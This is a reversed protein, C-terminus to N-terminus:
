RCVTSSYLVTLPVSGLRACSSFLLECFLGLFAIVGPQGGLFVFRDLCDSAFERALIKEPIPFVLPEYLLLSAADAVVAYRLECKSLQESVM